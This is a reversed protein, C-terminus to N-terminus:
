DLCLTACLKAVSLVKFPKQGTLQGTTPLTNTTWFNDFKVKAAEPSTHLFKQYSQKPFIAHVVFASVAKAGHRVLASGAELLTGGSQVLDDVLVCHKGTPDGDKVIVDRDNGRRIKSCIVIEYSTDCFFSAFRKHAGDDPFVIALPTSNSTSLQHLEHLLLGIATELRLVTQSGFYFQSQLAHVDIIIIEAPGTRCLPISSLIQSLSWATAVEGSKGIREMTGPGFHPCIVKLSRCGYKPFHSMVSFQAFISQPDHFAALFVIHSNRIHEADSIFLDPFGDNFCGWKISGLEITGNSVESIEQALKEQSPSYYLLISHRELLVPLQLTGTNNNEKNNISDSTRGKSASPHASLQLPSSPSSHVPTSHKSPQAYHKIIDGVALQELMTSTSRRSSAPRSGPPKPSAM